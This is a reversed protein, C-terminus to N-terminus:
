HESHNASHHSAAFNTAAAASMERNTKNSCCYKDHHVPERRDKRCLATERRQDCGPQWVQDKSKHGNIKVPLSRFLGISIREVDHQFLKKLIYSITDKLAQIDLTKNLLACWKFVRTNLVAFLM